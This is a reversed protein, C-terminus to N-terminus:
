INEIAVTNPNFILMNGEVFGIKKRVRGKTTIPVFSIKGNDGVYCNKGNYSSTGLDFRGSYM